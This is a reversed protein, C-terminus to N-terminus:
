HKTHVPLSPEEYILSLLKLTNLIMEGKKEKIEELRIKTNLVETQAILTDQYNTKGPAYLTSSARVAKEMEPLLKKEIIQIQGSLGQLSEISRNLESTIEARIKDVSNRGAVALHETEGTISDWKLASWVPVRMNLGFSFLDGRYETVDMPAFDLPGKDLAFTQSRRKMYSFFVETQPAITYKTLKSQENLRKEEAVAIRYEPANEVSSNRISVLGEIKKQSKELFSDLDIGNLDAVSVKDPIQFYELQAILDKDATSYETERELAETKSISVKIVGTLPINGSSYYGEAVAGQANLLKVVEANFQKKRELRKFRNLKILLDGLMRNVGAQYSLGAEGEMIKSIQKETGLKGPYPFEQSVSLEVGTMTPTDLSRDNLSYGNRTPYNRYAFGIKPDPLIGSAESHSKHAHTLGALSKSEPHDKALIELIESLGSSEGFLPLSISICIFTYFAHLRRM